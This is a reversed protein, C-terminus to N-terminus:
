ACLIKYNVWTYVQFCFLLFTLVGFLVRTKKPQEDFWDTVSPILVLPIVYFIRHSIWFGAVTAGLAIGVLHLDKRKSCSYWVGVLYPFPFIKTFPILLNSVTFDTGTSVLQKGGISVPADLIAPKSYGFVGSCAFLKEWVNFDFSKVKPEIAFWAHKLVFAMLILFFGHGHALIGLLVMSLEVRWDESTLLVLLLIGALAQAFIGDVMFWFYGTTYYLWVSFWNKSLFFLALPTVFAVLFIAFYAFAQTHFTFPGALWHFLPAYQECEVDWWSCGNKAKDYHFTYDGGDIFGNAIFAFVLTFLGM